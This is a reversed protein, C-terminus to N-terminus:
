EDADELHQLAANYAAVRRARVWRLPPLGSVSHWARVPLSDSIRGLRVRLLEIEHHLMEIEHHLMEIENNRALIIEKAETHVQWLEALQEEERKLRDGVQRLEEDRLLALDHADILAMRIDGERATIAALADRLEAHESERVALAQQLDTHERALSRMREQVHPLGARGLPLAKVIFQYTRADVDHKLADMLMDPIVTADFSVESAGIELEQRHIEAIALGAEDFMKEMSERTFFRLHTSDLLGLEQYAFRGELLALRVSAHAVNPLSVVFYGEPQLLASLSQLARLPDRLHELVDAAVIVDFQDGNLEAALDMTDLDGVIIRECFQAARAAMDADIEIGVVACDNARLVETMYGTAPGLELVRHSSGVMRVVNAHTSDSSPDISFEYSAGRDTPTKPAQSDTRMARGEDPLEPSLYTDVASSRYGNEHRPSSVSCMHRDAAPAITALARRTPSRSM